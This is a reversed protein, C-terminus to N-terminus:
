PRLATVADAVADHCPLGTLKAAARVPSHPDLVVAIQRQSLLGDRAAFGASDMYELDSLDVVVPRTGPLDNIERTFARVNAVDIEGSVRVLVLPTRDPVDLQQSDLHFLQTM